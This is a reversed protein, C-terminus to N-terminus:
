RQAGKSNLEDACDSSVITGAMVARHHAQRDPSGPQGRLEDLQQQCRPSVLDLTDPMTNCGALSLATMMLLSLRM